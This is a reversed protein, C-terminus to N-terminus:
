SKEEKDTYERVLQGYAKEIPGELLGGLFEAVSLGRARAILQAKGLLTRDLKTTGEDRGPKKPRGKTKAM